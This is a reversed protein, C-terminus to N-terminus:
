TWLLRNWRKSILRCYLVPMASAQERITDEEREWDQLRKDLLAKKEAVERRLQAVAEREAQADARSIELQRILDEARLQEGTLYTCAHEILSDALGLRRSIEFANSKGPLGMTLRYTPRLTNVDFEVSANQVGPTQYAYTKLESYHTTAVLRCGLGRLYDIISMAM